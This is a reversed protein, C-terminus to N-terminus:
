ARTVEGSGVLGNPFFFLALMISSWL